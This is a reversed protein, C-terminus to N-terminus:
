WKNIVRATTFTHGRRCGPAHMEDLVRSSRANLFAMPGEWTVIGLSVQGFHIINYYVEAASAPLSLSSANYM